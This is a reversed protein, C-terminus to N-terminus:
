IYKKVCIFKLLIFFECFFNCSLNHVEKEIFGPLILNIRQRYFQCFSWPSWEFWFPMNVWIKSGTLSDKSTTAVTEDSTAM